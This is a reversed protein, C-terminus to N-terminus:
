LFLKVRHKKGQTKFTKHLDLFIINLNQDTVAFEKFFKVFYLVLFFIMFPIKDFGQEEETVLRKLFGKGIIKDKWSHQPSIINQFELTHISIYM